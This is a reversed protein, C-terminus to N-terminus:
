VITWELFIKIKVKAMMSIMQLVEKMDVEMMKSSNVKPPNKYFFNMWCVFNECYFLNILAMNWGNGKGHKM